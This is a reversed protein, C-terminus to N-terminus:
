KVLASIAKFEETGAQRLLEFLASECSTLYAGEREARRLATEKDALSRSTVCDVPLFANYGAQVFDVISQLVCVHAEVGFVFLNKRGLARLHEAVGEAEHASFSTKDFPTYEGLAQRIEPVLDGLGRPYQRVVIIPIRLIHLGNIFKVAANLVNGGESMAPMLREQMDILVGASEERLARMTPGRKEDGTQEARRLAASDKRRMGNRRAAIPLICWEPVFSM